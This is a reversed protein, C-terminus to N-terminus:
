RYVRAFSKPIKSEFKMMKSLMPHKFSLLYAHLCLRKIPNTKAGYKADGAVPCGADLCHVRIQNKKGTELKLDLLSYNDSHKLVKYHTIALVGKNENKTSHVYYSADEYLYSQWRGSKNTLKGEVVARYHREIDHKAFLQKLEKATKSCFAFVMIGSTDQDLRHITYVKRPYFNRKLIAEMTREKELNTKVSLLGCPKEVVILFKDKYVISISINDELFRKKPRITVIQGKTLNKKGIKCIKGDVLIKSEKLWSKISNNSSGPFKQKLAEMLYINEKVTFKMM